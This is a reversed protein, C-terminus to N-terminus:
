RQKKLGYIQLGPIGGGTIEKYNSLLRYDGATSGWVLFYDIGYKELESNLETRSIDKQQMGYYKCDLHYSLFLSGGWNENSAIRSNAPILPKLARGLNYVWEGRHAYDRLSHSAPIAFSLFFVILLLIRRPKTFFRNKFLEGLIYGGMLMMMLVLVWLYRERVWILSYGGAYIIMTVTPYLVEPAIAKINFRRLWFLLYGIGIVVSLVSFDMFFAAIKGILGATFTLQNRVFDWPEMSPSDQMEQYSPDEWASMATENPPELFGKWLVALDQSGPLVKTRYSAKGTTGFTLEGYKNSLLGIWVGSILAFVVAGTLFNQVVQKKTQRTESRFYLLVNMIFFHSIFFPLAFSKSLYAAAGLVGSLISKNSRDSYDASFIVGFYFLLMCALILDPTIDSFAFSLVVPVATFLIVRRISETMEFRYSLIWLAIIIVLGILLALVKGALLADSTFYLLPMLLWSIFPGWWGNVANSFDGNLYKEAISIYSLGDPNIQYRYYKILLCGAILYILLSALVATFDKTRKNQIDNNIVSSKMYM